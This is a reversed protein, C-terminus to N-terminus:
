GYIFLLMERTSQYAAPWPEPDAYSLHFLRSGSSFTWEFTVKGDQRCPLVPADRTGAPCDPRMNAPLLGTFNVVRGGDATEASSWRFDHFAAEFAKGITASPYGTITGGRIVAVYDIITPDAASSAAPVVSASALPATVAPSKTSSCGALLVLSAFGAAMETKFVRPFRNHAMSV